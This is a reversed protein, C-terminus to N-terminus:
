ERGWIISKPPIWGVLYACYWKFRAHTQMTQAMFHSFWKLLRVQLHTGTFSFTFIFFNYPWTWRNAWLSGTSPNAGFKNYLYPDKVYDSTGINKTIRYPTLLKIERLCLWNGNVSHQRYRAALSLTNNCKKTNQLKMLMCWRVQWIINETKLSKDRSLNDAVPTLM